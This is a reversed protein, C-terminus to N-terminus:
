LLNSHNLIGLFRLIGSFRGKGLTPIFPNVELVGPFCGLGDLVHRQGSGLLIQLINHSLLLDNRESPEVTSDASMGLALGEFSGLTSPWGLGALSEEIHQPIGFVLTQISIVQDNIVNQHVTGRLHASTGVSGVTSDVGVHGRGAVNLHDQNLLFLRKNSNIILGFLLLNGSLFQLLLLQSSAAGLSGHLISFVFSISNARLRIMFILYM